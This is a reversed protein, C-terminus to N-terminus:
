AAARHGGNGKSPRRSKEDMRKHANAMYARIRDATDLMVSNGARLKRVLHGDNLAAIGFATASMPDLQLLSCALSRTALVICPPRIVTM